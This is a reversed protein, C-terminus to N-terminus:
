ASGPGRYKMAVDCREYRSGFTEMIDADHEFGRQEYLHIAPGCKWNTVLYLKEAFGRARARELVADLLFAGVKQGRAARLVGMKTLETFGHEDPMLACAGVLGLEPIRAFLIDGGKDIITERPHLLVHRDHDELVFMDEIWEANIDHFVHAIDDSYDVLEIAQSLVRSAMPRESLRREVASVQDLFDGGLGGFVDRAAAEVRTWMGVKMRAVAARGESTLDLVRLRKDETSPTSSVLGSKVLESAARTVAPQSVGLVDVAENVTMAGYRDLAAVLPFQGPQLVEGSAAHVVAADALLRESLRKLRSGIGLYGIDELVDRTM